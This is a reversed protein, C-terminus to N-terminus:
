NQKVEKGREQAALLQELFDPQTEDRGYWAQSNEQHSMGPEAVGRGRRDM